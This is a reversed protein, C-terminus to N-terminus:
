AIRGYLSITTGASMFGSASFNTLTTLLTISNVAATNAWRSAYMFVFNDPQNNSRTLLTKHKDTVSYDMISTYTMVRRTAGGYVLDAGTVNTRPASSTNAAYVTNYNSGADANLRLTIFGDGSHNMLGEVVIILDRYTNPIGSFTVSPSDSQLTVSAIATTSQLAM